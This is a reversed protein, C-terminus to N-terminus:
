KGAIRDIAPHHLRTGVGIGTKQATGAKLELVFQVPEQPSISDTSFPTGPLIAKVKGDSGIFVLDLPMPTNKMWFALHRQVPFLFLMGHHDSMSQRFMLGAERERVNDAIEITFTQKGSATQATLPTPDSPLMMPRGAALCSAPAMVILLCFVALAALVRAYVGRNIVM